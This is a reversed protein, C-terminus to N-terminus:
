TGTTYTQHAPSKANNNRVQLQKTTILLLYKSLELSILLIIYSFRCHHGTSHCTDLIKQKEEIQNKRYTIRIDNIEKYRMSFLLLM